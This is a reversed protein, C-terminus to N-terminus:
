IVFILLIRSLPKPIVINLALPVTKKLGKGDPKNQM